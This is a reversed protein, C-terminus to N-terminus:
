MAACSLISSASGTCSRPPQGAWASTLGRASATYLWLTAIGEDNALDEVAYILRTAHGRGRAEPIVYVGALWPTLDPRDELDREVLSAMGVPEDDALMVFTTPLLSSIKAGIREANLMDELRTGDNRFFAEWRWRGTIAALEPRDSTTVIALQM